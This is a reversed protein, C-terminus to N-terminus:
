PSAKALAAQIQRLTDWCANAPDQGQCLEASALEAQRLAALMDPAAAILRANAEHEDFSRTDDDVTETGIQAIHVWEYAEGDPNAVISLIDPGMPDQYGWPGLTHKDEM